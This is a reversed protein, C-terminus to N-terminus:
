VVHYLYSKHSRLVGNHIDVIIEQDNMLQLADPNNGYSPIAFLVTIIM